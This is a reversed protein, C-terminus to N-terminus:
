FMWPNTIALTIVSVVKSLLVVQRHACDIYPSSILLYFKSLYHIFSIHWVENNVREPDQTDGIDYKRKCTWALHCLCGEKQACIWRGCTLTSFQNNGVLAQSQDTTVKETRQNTSITSNSFDLWLNDIWQLCSLPQPWGLNPKASRNNKNLIKSQDNWYWPDISSLDM